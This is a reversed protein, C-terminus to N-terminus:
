WNEVQKIYEALQQAIVQHQAMGPHSGCGDNYGKDFFYHYIQHDGEDNLYQQISTIYKKLIVRLDNNAMPSSVCIIDAKPYHARVIKVFAVYASCFATSDQNGDNQGLCITVVDPKYNSFNWKLTDARPNIKDFVQPMVIDMKCCSHIMGIGSVATIYWQANLQRAVTPGYSLYANHQDFWQGKDCKVTSEDIGSGCTISDGIFEIKRKPEKISLLKECKLGVFEIYGIGSETDKCITVTHEGPALDKAVEIVNTKGTTQIRFPKNNDIAVELYNHLKGYLVEDNVSISLSTGEFKAQVYVGPQWFRPKLPDSFDVRGVYKIHKDNASFFKVEKSKVPKALACCTTALAIILSFAYKM